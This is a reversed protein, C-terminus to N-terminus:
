IRFYFFTLKVEINGQLNQLAFQEEPALMGATLHM